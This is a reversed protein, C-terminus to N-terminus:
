RAELAGQPHADGFEVVVVVEVLEVVLVVTSLQPTKGVHPPIHEGPETQLVWSRAVQTHMEEADGQPPVYGTQLPWHGTPSSHM